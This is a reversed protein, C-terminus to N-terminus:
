NLKIGQTLQLNPELHLTLVAAASNILILEDHVVM